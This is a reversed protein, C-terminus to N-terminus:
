MEPETLLTNSLNMIPDKMKNTEISDEPIFTTSSTPSLPILEETELSHPIVQPLNSEYTPNPHLLPPPIPQPFISEVSTKSSFPPPPTTFNIYDYMPPPIPLNFQDALCTPIIHNSTFNDINNPLLNLGTPLNHGKKFAEKCLASLKKLQNQAKKSMIIICDSTINTLSQSEDPFQMIFLEYLNQINKSHENALNKYVSLVLEMLKFNTVRAFEQVASRGKPPLGTIPFKLNLGKPVVGLHLCAALFNIHCILHALKISHYKFNRVWGTKLIRDAILQKM